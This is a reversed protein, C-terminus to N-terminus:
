LDGCFIETLSGLTLDRNLSEIFSGQALDRSEEGPRYLIEMLPRRALDRYSVDQCSTQVFRQFVDRPLIEACAGQLLDRPLIETHSRQVLERYARKALNIYPVEQCSRQLLDRHLTETCSRQLLDRPLIEKHFRQVLERCSSEQSSSKHLLGRPLIEQAIDRHLIEM